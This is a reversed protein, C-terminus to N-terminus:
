IETVQGKVIREPLFGVAEATPPIGDVRKNQIM